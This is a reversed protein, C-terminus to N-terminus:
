GTGPASRRRLLLAMGGAVTGGVAGFLHSDTVVPGGALAATGPTAGALGEWALKIAVVALVAVAFVRERGDDLAALAGAVLLGHLVGSLGVYWGVSPAFWWLGASVALACALWTAAWALPRLHHGVLAAVLITGLANLGLHAPGLHVLHATVLRWAEGAAIGDRSYRLLPVLGGAQALGALALLGAVCAWLRRSPSM